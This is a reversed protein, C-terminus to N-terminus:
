IRKLEQLVEFKSSKEHREGKSKDIMLGYNTTADEKYRPEQKKILLLDLNEGLVSDLHDKPSIKIRPRM